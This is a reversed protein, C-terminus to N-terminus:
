EDMMEVAQGSPRMMLTMRTQVLTSPTGGSGPRYMVRRPVIHIRAWHKQREQWHDTTPPTTSNPRSKSQIQAGPAAKSRAELQPPPTTSASNVKLRLEPQPPPTTSSSKAKMCAEDQPPPTTSSMKKPSAHTMATPPQPGDDEEFQGMAMGCADDVINEAAARRDRRRQAYPALAGQGVFKSVRVVNSAINGDM